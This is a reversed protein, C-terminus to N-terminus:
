SRTTTPPWMRTVRQEILGVSANILLGFAGVVVLLGFAQASAFNREAELLPGGIGSAGTLIEVLRYVAEDIDHSGCSTAPSSCSGAVTATCM